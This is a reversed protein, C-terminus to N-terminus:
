AQRGADYAYATDLTLVPHELGSEVVIATALVEAAIWDKHAEVVDAHEVPVSLLVRDTLELGAQKREENLARILELARGELILEHDLTPDIAVSVGGDHAVVWGELVVKETRIVEDPGLTVGAAGVGGDPLDEYDHAALAAAVEKIRPGLRPGAVPFNPKVTVELETDADFSIEKVRLEDLIEDAHGM